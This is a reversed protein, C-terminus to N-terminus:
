AKVPRLLIEIRRNQPANPDGSVKLTRDAHGEIREIREKPLGGRLLMYHAIHARATSLRWNDYTKSRFPRADTHGRIVIDGKQDSLVKAVKEMLVVLEPRPEASSIAFMEFSSQDTLSILVGEATEEVAIQPLKALNAEKLAQRLETKIEKTEDEIQKATAPDPAPAAKDKAAAPDAPKAKAEAEGGDSLTDSFPLAGPKGTKGSNDLAAESEKNDSSKKKPRIDHSEADDKVDSNFRFEPDFPDRFAEGGAMRADSDQRIGESVPLAVKSAKAALKALVDYPDSFLGEDSMGLKGTENQPDSHKDFKESKKPQKDADKGTGGQQLDQVGRDTTTRDTFEIPNFYTVIQSVTKEDTANVLWMVLFLAMMATMFDAYAIKWVGGHHGEEGGKVRKIIIIEPPTQGDHNM